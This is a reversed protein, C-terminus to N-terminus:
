PIARLAVSWVFDTQLTNIFWNPDPTGNPSLGSPLFGLGQAMDGNSSVSARTHCTICSSTQVFGDEIISNGLLTPAGTSTTFEVQSGKLCYNDWYAPLGADSFMKKLAPTKDCPGYQGGVPAQPGVVDKTAGFNDRCGMFDCRGANNKHEFTAWTWNPIQKSIIHMGVLAFQQGGANNVHYQSPDTVSNALVWDAKVEISDTPFVIPKGAAFAAKLGTRNFLNNCVIFDFTVKNRRVEEGGGPVVHPQLGPLRPAFEVLAPLTLAKPAAAAVAPGPVPAAPAPQAVAPGCAPPTTSGPWRPNQTFTTQNSAWTEFLADKSGAAAPKNVQVFLQWSIKDPENVAPNPDTSQARGPVTTGLLATGLMLTAVAGFKM